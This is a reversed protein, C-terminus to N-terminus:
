GILIISKVTGNEITVEVDNLYVDSLSVTTTTNDSNLQYISTSSNMTYTNSGVTVTTGTYGNVTGSIIASEENSIFGDVGTLYNKGITLASDLSLMTEVKGNTLNLVTYITYTKSNIYESGTKVLVKVSSATSDVSGLSGDSIYLYRLTEVSGVENKLVATVIAGNNIKFSSGYVGNIVSYTSGTKVVIVTKADTVFNVATESAGVSSLVDAGGNSLTYYSANKVITSGSANEIIYAIENNQSNAQVFESNGSKIVGDALTTYPILTYTGAADTTYRYVKGTVVNQNTVFITSKTGNINAEMVYGFKGDTFVPTTTSGAVLYQSAAFVSTSSSDIAIIAGNHTVVRVKTGVTLQANIDAAPIGLKANGLTYKIGGVTASTSTLRSVTGSESVALAAAIELTDNGENFYYLVYDGHEANDPNIITLETEKMNDALNVKGGSIELKGFAYSKIILRDATDSDKEDFVLKADYAGLLASLDANTEVQTLKGENSYAYVLLENANTSLPNESLKDVVQYKVGDIEIYSDDKGVNITEPSSDKGIETCGLVSVLKTKLDNKFVVRLNEGLNEDATGALGLESFKVTLLGNENKLTVYGEKTVKEIGGISYNNTAAIFSEEIEYGFVKEIITTSEYFTMGNSATKPILYEATLANYLIVAVEERTLEKTYRIDEIGDDLGLKVASDIYTWPYGGNMQISSHGLARVIMTMADQLTIGETPEFTTASTGIIYGSANAWSIAGSYTDDYLDTFATTNLTGATDKAIMLRFLLLAMQERTVNEDPSFEDENTGKIVGIDSLIGIQEAYDSDAPVDSFSKASIGTSMMGVLMLTSLSVSLFKKLNGM